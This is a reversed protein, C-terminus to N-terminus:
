KPMQLFILGLGGIMIILNTILLTLAGILWNKQKNFKEDVNEHVKEHKNKFQFLECLKWNIVGPGPCDKCPFEIHHQDNM